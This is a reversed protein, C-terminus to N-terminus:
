SSPPPGGSSPGESWNSSGGAPPPPAGSTQAPPNWPQAGQAPPEKRSRLLLALLGIVLAIVAVAIAVALWNNFDSTQVYSPTSVPSYGVAASAPGNSVTVKGTSGTGVNYGSVANFSYTYAGNPLYWVLSPGTTSQSVGNVTASWATGSALGGASLTVAYLTPPIAAYTVAVTYTAASLVVSGSSPSVTYNTVGGVQYAYTGMPETFNVFPTTSTTTVGNLTVSWSTGSALGSEAFSVTFTEEPGIPFEDYTAGTILYPALYGNSGYTHWDAWYNGIGTSCASNTCSYYYDFDVSYAQIHNPNYTGTAGNDGIFNNTYIANYDGGTDAIGYSTDDVFSSHIISNYDSGDTLLAGQYDQYAGIGTFQSTDTSDLYLGYYGGTANLDTVTLGASDESYLAAPFMTAIVGTVTVAQSDGILVAAVPLGDDYDVEVAWPTQLTTGTATVGSVTVFESDADVFVGISTEDATVTSVQINTSDYVWVGISGDTASVGTVSDALSDEVEAGVAGDTATITSATVGSSPDVIVGASDLGTASIDTITVGTADSTYVGTSHDNASVDKVTTDPSPGQIELGTSYYYASIGTATTDSDEFLDAADYSDYSANVNQLVTNESFAIEAGDEVIHSSNFWNFSTYNNFEGFMSIYEEYMSVTTLSTNQAEYLIGSLYSDESYFSSVNTYDSAELVVGLGESYDGYVSTDTVTTAFADEGLVGISNNFYGSESVGEGYVYTDKVSVHSTGQLLVGVPFGALDLTPMEDNAELTTPNSINLSSYAAETYTISADVSEEGWYGVAGFFAYNDTLSTGTSEIDLVGVTLENAGGFVNQWFVSYLAEAVTVKAHNSNALSVANAGYVSIADTVVPNPSDAIYVGYSGDEAVTLNSEFGPDNWAVVAGGGINLNHYCAPCTGASLVSGAFYGLLGQDYVQASADSYFAILEGYDPLSLTLEPAIGLVTPPSGFAPGDMLYYNYGLPDSYGQSMATVNIVDTVGTAQFLNFSVYGWDNLHDYFLADDSGSTVGNLLELGKFVFPGTTWGMLITAASQAQGNGNLYLPSTFTTTSATLTASIGVSTTTFGVDARTYGDALFFVYYSGSIPFATDVPPLYTLFGGEANTPLYSQNEYTTGDGVFAFGWDPTALTGQLEISGSAARLYTPTNWMGYLLSPGTSLSVTGSTSYTEAVGIATEGTDSGFDYASPVTKWGATTANSYELTETGTINSFVANSGGGPGGFDLESDYGLGLPTVYKGSVEFGPSNTPAAPSNFVVTDYVGTFTGASDVIRYGFKVQDRAGTISANNFLDITVPFTLKFTPGIDYYYSPYVPTGNYSYFTGPYLAGSASSFNWVNDIFSIQGGNLTVVNQTWFAGNTNGPISINNTVTNLQIGFYYPSNYDGMNAPGIFDYAGPYTANASNLTLSGLVHSTNYVYPTVGLGFDGIGMPAPNSVYGVGIAQSPSSPPSELENLNPLYVDSPRVTGAAIQAALESLTGASRTGPQSAVQTLKSALAQSSDTTGVSLPTSAAAEANWNSTSSPAPRAPPSAGSLATPAASSAADRAGSSLPHASAPAGFIAGGPLLMLACVAFVIPLVWIGKRM